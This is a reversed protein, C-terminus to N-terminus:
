LGNKNRYQAFFDRATQMDTHIQTFLADLDTFKLEPRLYHLIEVTAIKGYLDLDIDLLHAEVKYVKGESVTPNKGISIVGNYRTGEIYVFGTYIGWLVPRIKRLNLNITPVGYQRGLQNGYVVRSTFSINHGLYNSISALNQESALERILSSSIRVGNYKVKSFENCSIGARLIDKIDGSAKYGFNFDHGVIMNTIGLKTQLFQQVFEQPSLNAIYSNFHLVVVEDVLGSKAIVAIKDRLLGIRPLRPTGSKDSFYERPLVDFTILMRWASLEQAKHNLQALLQKHGNHVGDFNGITAIIPMGAQMVKDTLKVRFMKVKLYVFDWM